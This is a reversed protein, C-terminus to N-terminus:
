RAASSSRPSITLTRGSDELAFLGAALLIGALLRPFHNRVRMSREQGPKSPRSQELRRSCSGNLNVLVLLRMRAAAEERRRDAAYRYGSGLLLCTLVITLTAVSAITPNIDFRLDDWMRQPLTVVGSGSLFLAVILEDFSSILSRRLGPTQRGNTRAASRASRRAPLVKAGM